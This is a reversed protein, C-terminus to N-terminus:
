TEHNQHRDETPGQEPKARIKWWNNQHLHWNHQLQRWGGDGDPMLLRGFRVDIYDLIDQHFPATEPWAAFWSDYNHFEDLITCYREADQFFIAEQLLLMLAGAGDLTGLDTLKDLSRFDVRRRMFPTESAPASAVFLLSKAQSDLREMWGALVQLPTTKNIPSSPLRMAAWFPHRLWYAAGPYDAEVRDVLNYKQEVLSLRDSGPTIDGRAYKDWICPRQVTGDEFRRISEPRAFELELGYGVKGSRISVANFWAKTRFIEVPHRSKTQKSHTPSKMFILTVAIASM